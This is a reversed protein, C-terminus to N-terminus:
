NNILIHTTARGDYEHGIEGLENMVEMASDNNLVLLTIPGNTYRLDVFLRSFHAAEKVCQHHYQGQEEMFHMM